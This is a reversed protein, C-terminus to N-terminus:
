KRPLGETDFCGVIRSSTDLWCKATKSLPELRDRFRGPWPAYIIRSSNGGNIDATRCFTHYQREIAPLSKLPVPVIGLRRALRKRWKARTRRRRTM